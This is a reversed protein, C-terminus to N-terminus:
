KFFDKTDYNRWRAVWFSVSFIFLCGSFLLSLINTSTAGSILDGTLSGCEDFPKRDRCRLGKNFEKGFNQQIYLNQGAIALSYACFYFLFDVLGNIFVVPTYFQSKKKSVPLSARYLWRLALGIVYLFMVGILVIVIINIALIGDGFSKGLKCTEFPEGECSLQGNDVLNGFENSMVLMMSSACISSASALLLYTAKFSDKM